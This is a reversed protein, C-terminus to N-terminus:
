QRRTRRSVRQRAVLEVVAPALCPDDRGRDGLLGLSAIGLRRIRGLHDDWRRKGLLRRHLDPRGMSRELPRRRSRFHGLIAVAYKYSARM